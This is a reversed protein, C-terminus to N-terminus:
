SKAIIGECKESCLPKMPIDLTIEELTPEGIEIQFNKDVILKDEEPTRRGILYERDFAVDGKREYEELCRACVTKALYNIDFQALIEQELLTLQVNGSIEQLVNEEDLRLNLKEDIEAKLRDGVKGKAILNKVDIKAPFTSLEFKEPEKKM